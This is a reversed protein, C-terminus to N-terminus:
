PISRAPHATTVLVIVLIGLAITLIGVLALQYYPLRVLRQQWRLSRQHRHWERMTQERSWDMQHGAPRLRGGIGVSTSPVRDVGSVARPASGPQDDFPSDSDYESHGRSM